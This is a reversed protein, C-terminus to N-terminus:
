ESNNPLRVQHRFLWGTVMIPFCFFPLFDVPPFIEVELWFFDWAKGVQTWLGNCEMPAYKQDCLSVGSM